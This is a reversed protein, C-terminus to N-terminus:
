SSSYRICDQLDKHIASPQGLPLHFRSDLPFDPDFTVSALSCAAIHPIRHPGPSRPAGQRANCAIYPPNLVAPPPNTLQTPKPLRSCLSQFETPVLLGEYHHPMYLDSICLLGDCPLCRPLGPVHADPTCNKQSEPLCDCGDGLCLCSRSAACRVGSVQQWM